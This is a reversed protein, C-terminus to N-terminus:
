KYLLKILDKSLLVKLSSRVLTKEDSNLSVYANLIKKISKKSNNIIEPFSEYGTAILLKWMIQVYKKRDSLNLNFILKNINNDIFDSMESIEALHKFDSNEVQWTYPEHQFVTNVNSIVVTYNNTHNLLIGVVSIFPTYFKIKNEIQKYELSNYINDIFGPGDNNYVKIIREKVLSHTYTSCYVALNGGKSHGGVILKTNLFLSVYNLYYLALKQSPISSLYAMNFDERWGLLSYDTGKFAVYALDKKLIFTIAGFKCVNDLDASDTYNYDANFCLLIDKFRNSSIVSKILRLDKSLRIRSIIDDKDLLKFANALRIVNISTKNKFLNFSSTKKIIEYNDISEKFRKKLSNDYKNYITQNHDTSNNKILNLKDELKKFKYKVIKEYNNTEFLNNYYKEIPISPVINTFSFYSLTSLVLNDISNFEKENFTYNGYKKIYDILNPM